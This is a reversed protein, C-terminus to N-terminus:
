ETAATIHFMHWSWADLEVFLGNVLDDGRRPFTIHQMPDRLNWTHGRLDEWPVRVLGAAVGDSLNVVILWRNDGEWCWAILDQYRDDGPWGSRDCLQWRGDRFTPDALATLFSRYFDIL